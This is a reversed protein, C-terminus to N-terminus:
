GGLGCVSMAVCVCCVGCSVWRGAASRPGVWGRAAGKWSAISPPTAPKESVKNNTNTNKSNDKATANTHQQTLRDLVQFVLSHLYEVKRSYICATGQVDVCALCLGPTLSVGSSVHHTTTMVHTVHTHIFSLSSLARVQILLAAEAFNLNTQGGDLSIQLKDLEACCM